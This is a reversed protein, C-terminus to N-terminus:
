IFKGKGERRTKWLSLIDINYRKMENVEKLKGSILLTSVNWLGVNAPCCPNRMIIGSTAKWLRYRSTRIGHGTISIFNNTTTKMYSLIPFNEPLPKGQDDTWSLKAFNPRQAVSVTVGETVGLAGTIKRSVLIGSVPPLYM